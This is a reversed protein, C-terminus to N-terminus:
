VLVRFYEEDLPTDRFLLLFYIMETIFLCIYDFMILQNTLGLRLWTHAVPGLLLWTPVFYFFPSYDTVQLCFYFIKIFWRM